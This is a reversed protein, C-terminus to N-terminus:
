GNKNRWTEIASMLPNVWDDRKEIFIQPTPTQENAVITVLQSIPQKTREEWAIAYFAEQMFYNEIYQKSKPKASTKFDIISRKGDFVGVLDVRGAVGLYESYLAKEIGNVESLRDELTYVVQKYLFEILPNDITPEVNRVHMELANHTQTGRWAAQRSIKMAKEYGIRKRWEKLADESLVSLVTTISPFKDGKPSNYTRGSEKTESILDAYEFNFINHKYQMIM